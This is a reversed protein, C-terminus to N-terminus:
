AIGYGLFDKPPIGDYKKMQAMFYKSPGDDFTDLVTQFCQKATDWDKKYFAQLGSNFKQFFLSEVYKLRIRKMDPTQWVNLSYLALGTPLVLQEGPAHAANTNSANDDGKDSSVSAGGISPAHADNPSSNSPM